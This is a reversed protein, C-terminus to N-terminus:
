EYACGDPLKSAGGDPKAVAARIREVCGPSMSGLILFRPMPCNSPNGRTVQGDKFRCETGIGVEHPSWIRRPDGEVIEVMSILVWDSSRPGAPSWLSQCGNYQPGIDKKRPYIRLTVGHNMEEGALAPPSSLDCNEGTPRGQAIALLPTVSILIFVILARSPSM